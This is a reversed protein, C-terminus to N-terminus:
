PDVLIGAGSIVEGIRWLNLQKGAFTAELDSARDKSV